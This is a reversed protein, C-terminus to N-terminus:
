WYDLPDPARRDPDFGDERLQEDDVARDASLGYICGILEAMMERCATDFGTLSDGIRAGYHRSFAAITPPVELYRAFPSTTSLVADRTIMLLHHLSRRDIELPDRGIRHAFRDTDHALADALWAPPSPKPTSAELDPPQDLDAGLAAALAQYRLAHYDRLDPHATAFRTRKLWAQLLASRTYM